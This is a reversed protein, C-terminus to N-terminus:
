RVGRRILRELAGADDLAKDVWVSRSVSRLTRYESANFGVNLSARRGAIRM